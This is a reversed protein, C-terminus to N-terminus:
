HRALRSAHRKESLANSHAANLLTSPPASPKACCHQSVPPDGVGRAAAQLVLDTLLRQRDIGATELTRALCATPCMDPNANVELIMPQGSSSLRLDIRAYDRCGAVRYANKALAVLSGALESPLSVGKLMDMAKYELSDPRWKADYSLIPWRITPPLTFQVETIPLAILEPLELLAVTFERGPLFQEILVPPGYFELLRALRLDLEAPSSVVSSQDIGESADRRAPKLIMPWPFKTGPPPLKDAVHFWPTPLGAALMRQKASHKNLGLRLARSPSGTFPIGTQELVRAVVFESEPRDALGEFLNFVVDPSVAALRPRLDHLNRGIGLQAVSFAAATLHKSIDEVATRVWEESDYESHTATRVPQNYLVVVRVRLVEQLM